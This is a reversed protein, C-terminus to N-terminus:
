VQREKEEERGEDHRVKNGMEVYGESGKARKDRGEKEKMRKGKEQKKRKRKKHTKM